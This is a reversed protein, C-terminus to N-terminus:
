KRLKYKLAKLANNRYQNNVIGMTIQITIPNGTFDIVNNLTYDVINYKAKLGLYFTDNIYYRYGIGLNFNYSDVSEAEIDNEKDEELVRFGDVAIGGILQLEHRNISFIDRGIDLGLIGGFFYDTLVLSNDSKTRRAYYKNPSDDFKFGITLDYNMKKYKVGFQFNMEPHVGIQKLEGTPIWVGTGLSMHIEATEVYQKVTKKYEKALYTQEFVKNQIETFITDRKTGYLEALLYEIQNPEYEKILEKALEQTYKDFEQGPPIFGYYSQYNDYLYYNLNYIIDMRNQYNLIYNIVGEDLLSDDYQNQKLALLIKARFLPERLGCKSEWYQLLLEASDLKNEQMYKIFYMGCNYSIDSCDPQRQTMISDFDQGYLLSTIFFMFTILTTKKM